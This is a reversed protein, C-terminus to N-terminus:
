IPSCRSQVCPTLPEFGKKEVMLRLPQHLCAPLLDAFYRSFRVISFAFLADCFSISLFYRIPILSSALCIPYSDVIEVSFGLFRFVPFTKQCLFGMCSRWTHCGLLVTHLASLASVPFPWAFFPMLRIGQCQSGFFSTVLQSFSRHPAFIWQGASTRILSSLQLLTCNDVSSYM